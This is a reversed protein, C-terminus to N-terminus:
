KTQVYGSLSVRLKGNNKNGAPANIRLMLLGSEKPTMDLSEGIFFPKGLKQDGAIVGMLAGCPIGSIMDNAPDKDPFGAASLGGAGADFRYTGEAKIRLARGEFVMAGTSEWGRSTVLDFEYDNSKMIGEKIQELRKQVETLQPNVALVAELLSKAKELHGAEIYQEALEEADRAFGSQIQDARIDLSKTNAQPGKRKSSKKSKSKDQGQVFGSTPISAGAVILGLSLAVSVLLKKNRM